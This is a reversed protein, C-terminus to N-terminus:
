DIETEIRIFSLNIANIVVTHSVTGDGGVEMWNFERPYFFINYTPVERNAILDIDKYHAYIYFKEPNQGNKSLEDFSIKLIKVWKRSLFEFPIDNM